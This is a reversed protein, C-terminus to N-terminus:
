PPTKGALDSSYFIILNEKTTTNPSKSLTYIAGLDNHRLGYDQILNGAIYGSAMITPTNYVPQYNYLGREAYEPSGGVDNSGWAYGWCIGSYPVHSIDNHVIETRVTYTVFIPVCSTVTAAVERFINELIRNDNSIMRADPPHHADAQIGGLTIANAGTQHFYMGSIEVKSVGLGVGSTHANPDNGIGIGGMIAVLSGNQFTIDHAASAQISGPIQWWHPRSAEFNDPYTTNDGIFGGTQQDVYGLESSPFDTTLNTLSETGLDSHSPYTSWTTHMYNFGRFTLDHVPSDYTGSVVLLQELKGLVIYMKNIDEEPSPKYYVKGNKSDLYWENEEDLLALSNEVYFGHDAFPSILTDYGNGNNAFAPQKMYLTGNDGARAIPCFRHTFSNVGVIEAEDLGPLALLFSAEDAISYGESFPVLWSRDLPKRARQAHKQNAFLHRSRIGAPVNTSFIGEAQDYVAWDTMPLRRLTLRTTRALTFRTVYGGLINVGRVLDQAEWIVRYGNTGSDNATFNLPTQLYYTSPAVIVRLDSTM